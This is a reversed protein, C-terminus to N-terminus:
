IVGHLTPPKLENIKKNVSIEKKQKGKPKKGSFKKIFTFLQLPFGILYKKIKKCLNM